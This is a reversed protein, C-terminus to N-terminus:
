LAGGKLRNLESGAALAAAGELPTAQRAAAPVQTAPPAAAALKGEEDTASTIEDELKDAFYNWAISVALVGFWGLAIALFYHLPYGLVRASNDTGLMIVWPATHAMLLYLVFFGITIFAEKRYASM